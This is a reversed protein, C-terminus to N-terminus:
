AGLLSAQAPAENFKAMNVHRKPARGRCAATRRPRKKQPTPRWQYGTVAPRTAAPMLGAELFVLLGRRGTMRADARGCLEQATPSHGCVGRPLHSPPADAGLDPRKAYLDSCHAPVLFSRRPYFASRDRARHCEPHNHPDLRHLGSLHIAPELWRQRRDKGVSTAFGGIRFGLGACSPWPFVSRLHTAPLRHLSLRVLIAASRHDPLSYQSVPM